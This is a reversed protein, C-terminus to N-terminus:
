SYSFIFKRDQNIKRNKKAADDAGAFGSTCGGGLNAFDSWTGITGGIAAV